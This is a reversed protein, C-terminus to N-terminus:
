LAVRRRILARVAHSDLDIQGFVSLTIEVGERVLDGILNKGITGSESLM